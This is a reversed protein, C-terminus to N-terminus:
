RFARWPASAVADHTADSFAGTASRLDRNAMEFFPPTVHVAVPTGVLTSERGGISGAVFLTFVFASGFGLVAGFRWASSLEADKDAWAADGDVGIGTVRLM